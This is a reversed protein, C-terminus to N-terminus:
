DPTAGGAGLARRLRRAIMGGDVPLNLFPALAEISGGRQRAPLPLMGPARRFRVPPSGIIRWGDASIEVARWGKDALDLYIRGEHEAVRVHITREPADFQARAELLRADVQHNRWFAGEGTQEYYRRRLRARLPGPREVVSFRLISSHLAQPQIFYPLPPVRFPLPRLWM